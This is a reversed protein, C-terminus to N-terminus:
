RAQGDAWLKLDRVKLAGDLAGLRWLLVSLLAQQQAATLASLGVGVAGQATALVTARAQAQQLAAQAAAADIAAVDHAAVVTTVAAPDTADAVVITIADGFAAVQLPTVGAAVLQNQLVDLRNPKTFQLTHSM